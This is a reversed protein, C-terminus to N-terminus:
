GLKFLENSANSAASPLKRFSQDEDEHDDPIPMGRPFKMIYYKDEESLITPIRHKGRQVALYSERLHKFVHIYLELDVEQDLQKTGSYYGKESIEKVFQDEPLGGRILQKAETSLQHPTITTINKSSTFNRIRRFLDRVDTGMPGTSTCGTTPIMALYDLFLLEINYGQAELEVIKNCINKYTWQTPDVRMMKIHFNNIQLKTKVYSAMEEITADEINVYMRTEDYKLSQYLFQLNTILNDEFSIRLILPKKNIDTTLPKNYLPIQKFLSLSMGTKYKHQLAGIVITEGQRIGGQLMRNLATWGTKYIKDGKNIDKIATFIERLSNDNGIDLDNIVAPDKITNNIQLPELQNILESIFDNINKIKDRQFRFSYSARNLIDNIQIEKFHNSIATRINLIIKKTQTETIDPEINNKISEFLRVDDKINILITQLLDALIIEHDIPANCLELILKRLNAIIMMETNAELNQDPINISELVTMILDNSNDVKNKLQNERYLLTICKVLLLKNDM